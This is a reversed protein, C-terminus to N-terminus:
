NVCCKCSKISSVKLVNQPISKSVRRPTQCVYGTSAPTYVRQFSLPPNFFVSKPSLMPPPTYISHPLALTATPRGMPTSFIAKNNITPPIIIPGPRPTKKVNSPSLSVDPRLVENKLLPPTGIEKLAHPPNNMFDSHHKDHFSMLEPPHVPEPRRYAPNEYPNPM